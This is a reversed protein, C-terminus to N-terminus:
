YVHRFLLSVGLLAEGAMMINNHLYSLIFLCYCGNLDLEPTKGGVKMCKHYEPLGKRIYAGNFGLDILEAM